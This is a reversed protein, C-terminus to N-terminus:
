AKVKVVPGGTKIGSSAKVFDAKVFVQDFDTQNALSVANALTDERAANQNLQIFQGCQWVTPFLLHTMVSDDFLDTIAKDGNDVGGGIFITSNDSNHQFDNTYGAYEKSPANNLGHGQIGLQELLASNQLTRGLQLYSANTFDASASIGLKVQDIKMAGAIADIERQADQRDRYENARLAAELKSNTSTASISTNLFVAEANGEARQWETLGAAGGAQMVKYYHLWEAALQADSETTHYLGTADAVWDHPTVDTVGDIVTADNIKTSVVLGFLTYETGTAASAVFDASSAVTDTITMVPGSTAGGLKAFDGALFVQHTGQNILQVAQALTSERNGNQNLQILEGNQAVANFPVHTMIADDMLDAIAKEGDDVGGGMFLTKNDVANQIDNTYGRYISSPPSNLGHGQLALEELTNNGQLTNEVEIYSQQTFTSITIGLTAQTISIAAGLADFERQIDMRDIGQQTASLTNLGTNLFIAEANGELRQELTLSAGHGALMTNYDNVWEAGLIANAAQDIAAATPTSTHGSASASILADALVFQNQSNTIWAHATTDTGITGAVPGGYLGTFSQGQTATVLAALTDTM